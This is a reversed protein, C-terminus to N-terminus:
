PYIGKWHFHECVVRIFHRVTRADVWRKESLHCVWGLVKEPTDVRSWEIWYGYGMPFTPGYDDGYCLRTVNEPPELDPDLSVIANDDM